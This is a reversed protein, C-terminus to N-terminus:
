ETKLFYDLFHISKSNNENNTSKTKKYDDIIGLRVYKNTKKEISKKVKNPLANSFCNEIIDFSIDQGSIDQGSIDQGSIDQGSIDQGSIDLLDNEYHLIKCNYDIVYKRSAVILYKYLVDSKKTYYSFSENSNDYFMLLQNNPVDIEIVKDKLSNKFEDSLEITCLQHFEDKFKEEFLELEVRKIMQREYEEEKEILKYDLQKKYVILGTLLFSIFFGSSYLIFCSIINYVENFM